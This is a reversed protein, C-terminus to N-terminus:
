LEASDDPLEGGKVHDRNPFAACHVFTREPEHQSRAAAADSDPPEGGRADDAPCDVLDARKRREGCFRYQPWTSAASM